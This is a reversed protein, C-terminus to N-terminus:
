ELLNQIKYDDEKIGWKQAALWCTFLFHSPDNGSTFALLKEFHDHTAQVAEAEFGSKGTKMSSKTHWQGTHLLLSTKWSHQLCGRNRGAVRWGGRWPDPETDPLARWMGSNVAAMNLDLHCFSWNKTSTAVRCESLKCGFLHVRGPVLRSARVEMVKFLVKLVFYKILYIGKLLTRM